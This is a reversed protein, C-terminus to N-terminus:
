CSLMDQGTQHVGKTRGYGLMGSAVYVPLHDSGAADKLAKVYVNVMAQATNAGAGAVASAFGASMADGEVRLHVGHFGDPNTAHLADSVRIALKEIHVDFTLSQAALAVAQLDSRLTGGVFPPKTAPQRQVKVHCCFVDCCTHM